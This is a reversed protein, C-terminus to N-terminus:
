RTGEWVRFPRNESANLWRKWAAPDHYWGERMSRELVDPPIHAVLKLDKDQKHHDRQLKALELTPEIDYRDELTLDGDELHAITVKEPSPADFLRKM